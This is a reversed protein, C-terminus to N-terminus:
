PDAAIGVLARFGGIGPWGHATRSRPAEDRDCRGIPPARQRHERSQRRSCRSAFDRSLLCACGSATLECRTASKPCGGSGIACSGPSRTSHSSPSNSRSNSPSTELPFTGSIHATREDLWSVSEDPLDYEDAIEGVIKELLDELTVLGQTAGYEDLVIAKQQHTRRFEALLAGLNKTEPIFPVPRLLQEITTDELRRHHYASFIDRLHLVGIVNDLSGRYVPHRTYPSDIVIALREKLPVDASVAAIELGPVMVGRVETDAFDFM